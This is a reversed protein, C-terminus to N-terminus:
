RQLFTGNVFLTVAVVIALLICRVMFIRWEFDSVAKKCGATIYAVDALYQEYWRSDIGM